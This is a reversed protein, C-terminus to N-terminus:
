LKSFFEKIEAAKGCTMPGEPCKHVYCSPGYFKFITEDAERLKKLMDIAFNRIEEGYVDFPVVYFKVAAIEKQTTNAISIEIEPYDLSNRGFRASAYIGSDGDFYNTPEEFLGTLPNKGICGTLISICFLTVLLLSIVSKTKRM